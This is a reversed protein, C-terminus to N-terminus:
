NRIDKILFMEADLFGSEQKKKESIGTHISIVTILELNRFILLHLHSYVRWILMVSLVCVDSTVSIIGMWLFYISGVVSFQIQLIINM